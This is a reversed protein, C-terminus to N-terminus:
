LSMDIKTEFQEKAKSFADLINRSINETEVDVASALNVLRSLEINNSLIDYAAKNCVNRVLSQLLKLAFYRLDPEISTNAGDKIDNNIVAILEANVIQTSTTVTYNSVNYLASYSIKKLQNASPSPIRILICVILRIVNKGSNTQSFFRQGADVTSLNAVLGIISLVFRTEETDTIPIKSQYTDNFSALVGSMIESLELIKDKILIINIVDPIQTAKWLCYGLIYGAKSCFQSQQKLQSQLKMTQIELRGITNQQCRWEHQMLLYKTKWVENEVDTNKCDKEM